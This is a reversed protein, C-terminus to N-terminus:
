LALSRAYLRYNTNTPKTLRRGRRTAGTAATTGDRKRKRDLKDKARCVTAREREKGNAYESKLEHGFM